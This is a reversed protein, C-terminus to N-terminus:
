NIDVLWHIGYELFADCIFEYSLLFKLPLFFSYFFNHLIRMFVKAIDEMEVIALIVSASIHDKPIQVIRMKTVGTHRLIANM